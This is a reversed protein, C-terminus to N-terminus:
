TEGWRINDPSYISQGPVWPIDRLIGTVLTASSSNLQNQVVKVASLIQRTLGKKIRLAINAIQIGDLVIHGDCIHVLTHLKDM